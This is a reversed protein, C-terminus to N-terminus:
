LIYNYNALCPKLFNGKELGEYKCPFGRGCLLQNSKMTKSGRPMCKRSKDMNVAACKEKLFDSASQQEVSLNYHSGRTEQQIIKGVGIWMSGESRLQSFRVM